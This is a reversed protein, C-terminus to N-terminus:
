AEQGGPPVPVFGYRQLISLPKPQDVSARIDTVQRVALWSLAAHLLARGIGRQQYDPRVALLEVAGRHSGTSTGPLQASAVGLGVVQNGDLALFAGKPSLGPHWVLRALEEESLTEDGGAERSYAENYLAVVQLLDLAQNAERLHIGPPLPGQTRRLAEPLSALRLAIWPDPRNM